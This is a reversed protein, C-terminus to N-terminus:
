HRSSHLFSPAERKKPKQAKRARFIERETLKRGGGL